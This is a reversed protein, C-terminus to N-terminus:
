WGAYPWWGVNPLTLTIAGKSPVLLKVINLTVGLGGSESGADGYSFRSRLGPGWMMAVGRLGPVIDM